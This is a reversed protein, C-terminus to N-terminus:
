DVATHPVDVKDGHIYTTAPASALLTCVPITGAQVSNFAHQPIGRSDREREGNKVQDGTLGGNGTGALFSFSRGLNPPGLSTSENRASFQWSFMYRSEKWAHTVRSTVLGSPGLSGVVVSTEYTLNCELRAIFIPLQDRLSGHLWCTIYGLQFLNLM